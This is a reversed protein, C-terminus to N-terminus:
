AAPKITEYVALIRAYEQTAKDDESAKDLWKGLKVVFPDAKRGAKTDKYTKALQYLVDISVHQPDSVKFFAGVTEYDMGSNIAHAITALHSCRVTATGATSHLMKAVESNKALGHAEKLQERMEKKDAKLADMFAVRGEITLPFLRHALGTWPSQSSRSLALAEQALTWGAMKDNHPMDPIPQQRIPEAHLEAVAALSSTRPLTHVKM